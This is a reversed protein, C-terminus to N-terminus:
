ASAGPDCREGPRFNGAPHGPGLRHQGAACLGVFLLARGSYEQMARNMQQVADPLHNCLTRVRGPVVGPRATNGAYLLTAPIAHLLSDGLSAGSAAIRTVIHMMAMPDLEQLRGLRVMAAIAVVAFLALKAFGCSAVLFAGRAALPWHRYSKRYWPLAARRGIEAHVRLELERPAQMQPQERLMGHILDELDQGAGNERITMASGTREHLTTRARM